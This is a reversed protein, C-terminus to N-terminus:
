AIAELVLPRHKRAAQEHLLDSMSHAMGEVESEWYDIDYKMLAERLDRENDGRTKFKLAPEGNVFFWERQLTIDILRDAHGIALKYNLQQQYESSPSALVSRLHEMSKHEDPIDFEIRLPEKASMSM